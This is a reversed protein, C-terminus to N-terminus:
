QAFSCEQFLHSNTEPGLNCLPCPTDPGVGIHYLFSNTPLRGHLYKWLFIAIKPVVNLRWLKPWGPWLNSQDKLRFEDYIAATLSKGKTNHMWKWETQEEEYNIPLSTIHDVLWDPFTESLKDHDWHEHTLFDVVHLQIIDINVNVYTPMQNIPVNFLWPDYWVSCNTHVKTISMNGKIERATTLLGRYTWSIKRNKNPLWIELNGYKYLMFKIWSKDGQNLLDFVLKSLLARKM